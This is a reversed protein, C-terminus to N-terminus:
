DLLGSFSLYSVWDGEALTTGPPIEVLGDAWVASSLVDSSQDPYLRAVTVGDGGTHVRARVFERRTGAEPWEFGARVRVPSPESRKAGQLTLILPRVLLAFTVFSSVPNGPLGLYPVNGVRGFLLPKGPRVAIRWLSVEGVRELARRMHDENGVSAGGSSLLLDHSGALQEMTRCTVDMDDPVIGEDTVECGVIEALAALLHNNATYRKGPGLPQGPLVLEDGTSFLAVRPRRSVRLCTAGAAAAIAIDQPRMRHGTELVTTGRSFDHGRPRVHEGIAPARGLRVRDGRAECEEQMLVADAGEPLPAGTFIRAATGPRLAHPRDGARIRQTIELDLTSSGTLDVTRVAYGDMASNAFGPVDIPSVLSEALVRNLAAGLQVSEAEPLPLTGALITARAESLGLPPTPAAAQPPPATSRAM